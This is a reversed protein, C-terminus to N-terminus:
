SPLRCSTSLSVPRAKEREKHFGAIGSPKRQLLLSYLHNVQKSIKNGFAIEKCRWRRTNKFRKLSPVNKKKSFLGAIKKAHFDHM